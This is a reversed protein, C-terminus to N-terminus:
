PMSRTPCCRIGTVVGQNERGEPFYLNEQGHSVIPRPAPSAPLGYVVARSIVM